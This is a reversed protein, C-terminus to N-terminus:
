SSLNEFGSILNTMVVRIEEEMNIKLNVLEAFILTM